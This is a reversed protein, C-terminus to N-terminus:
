FATIMPQEIERGGLQEEYRVLPTLADRILQEIDRNLEENQSSTGWRAYLGQRPFVWHENYDLGWPRLQESGFLLVIECWHETDTVRYAGEDSWKWGYKYQVSPLGRVPWERAPFDSKICAEDFQLLQPYEIKLELLRRHVDEVINGCLYATHEAVDERVSYILVIDDLSAGFRLPASLADLWVDSFCSKGQGTGCVVIPLHIRIDCPSLRLTELHLSEKMDPSCPTYRAGVAQLRNLVVSAERKQLETPRRTTLFSWLAKEDYSLPRSPKQQVCGAIWSICALSLCVSLRAKCGTIKDM